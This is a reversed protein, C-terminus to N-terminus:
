VNMIVFDDTGLKGLDFGDFDYQNMFNVISKIFIDRRDKSAVMQSYKKGGEAWGGVAISYKVDPYKKRLNTFNKFGNDDIDLQNSFISNYLSIFCTRRDSVEPDIVLVQWTSDDIGIFSYILHTCMHVPIDEIGYRGIGPRYIAWNSFYCVNRAKAPPKSPLVFCVAFM